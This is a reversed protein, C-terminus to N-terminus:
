VKIEVVKGQKTVILLRKVRTPSKLVQKARSIATRPHMKTRLLSIVVNESQRSIGELNHSITRKGNGTPSKIEWRQHLRTIFLDPRSTSGSPIFEIDSHFYSLLLQAAQIEYSDPFNKTGGAIIVNYKSHKPNM